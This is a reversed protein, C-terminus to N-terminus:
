CPAQAHGAGCCLQLPLQVSVVESALLQPPQPVTHGLPKTHPLPWHAFVQGAPVCCHPLLQSSTVVSRLLQPAQPLTQEAESRQKIPLQEVLQATSSIEHLPAQVLGMLSLWFQPPQPMAQVPPWCHEAFVQRQGAPVVDHLPCHTDVAVSEAL